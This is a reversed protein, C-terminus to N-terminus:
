FPLQSRAPTLEVGQQGNPGILQVQIKETGPFSEFLGKLDLAQLADPKSCDFQYHAEIDSHGAAEHDDHGHKHEQKHDHQDGRQYGAHASGLLEGAFQQESLSCGAAAPLGFLAQPQELQSRASAIKAEDAANAPAHEFGLLNMAPSFLELELRKGDLAVNLRAAGHEHAGLSSAEEHAHHHHEEQAHSYSLPLLLVPVALLLHRM